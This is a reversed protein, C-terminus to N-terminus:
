GADVHIPTAHHEGIYDARGLGYLKGFEICAGRTFDGTAVVGKWNWQFASGSSEIQGGNMWATMSGDISDVFLFDDRGDGNIDAM